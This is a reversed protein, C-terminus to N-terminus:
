HMNIENGVTCLLGASSFSPPVRKGLPGLDGTEERTWELGRTWTGDNGLQQKGTESGELGGWCAASVDGDEIVAETVDRDLEFCRWLEM